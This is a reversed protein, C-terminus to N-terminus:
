ENFQPRKVVLSLIKSVALGPQASAESYQNLNMGSLLQSLWDVAIQNFVSVVVAHESAYFKGAVRNVNGCLAGQRGILVFDGDHTYTTTFGRLGNGGYVPYRAFDFISKSTIGEGSKMFAIEDIRVAEWEKPVWGLESEKYLEPADEYSPRLKGTALDIGRTFLDRMMGAKIAKYKAIAAETKEIVADVTSLIRAIKRQEALSTPIFTKYFDFFDSPVRKQGASGTMRAEAKLRFDPSQLIQYIFCADGNQKNRLVHFETSGFGTKNRLCKALAGKGNEMCPTIKAFLVDGEIFRTFGFKVDRLLRDHKNILRGGESVDAMGVFSILFDDPLGSISVSPNVEAIATIPKYFDSM